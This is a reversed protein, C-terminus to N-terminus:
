TLALSNEAGEYERSFRTPNTPQFEDAGGSSTLVKKDRLYDLKVFGFPAFPEFTLEFPIFEHLFGPL